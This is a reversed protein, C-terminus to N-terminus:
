SRVGAVLAQEARARREGLVHREVGVEAQLRALSHEEARSRYVLWADFPDLVDRELAESLVAALEEGASRGRLGEPAPREDLRAAEIETRHDAWRARAAMVSRLRQWTGDVVRAAVWPTDPALARIVGYATSLVLQDVEELSEWLWDSLEERWARRSVRALGPLVAQLLARAALEDVAANRALAGLVEGAHPGRQRCHAVADELDDLLCLGPSGEAWRAWSARAHRGRCVHEWERSLAKFLNTTEWM